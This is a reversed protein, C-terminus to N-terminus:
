VDAHTHIVSSSCAKLLWSPRLNCSSVLDHFVAADLLHKEDLPGLLADLEAQGREEVGKRQEKRAKVYCLLFCHCSKGSLSERLNLFTYAVTSNCLDM